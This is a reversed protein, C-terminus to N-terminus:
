ERLSRPRVAAWPLLRPPATDPAPGLKQLLAHLWDGARQCALPVDLGAALGSAIASALACGTGRVRGVPLRQRRFAFHAGPLQLLDESLPGDGHGGKGLVAGAGHQLAVSARGACIAALEPQNPTFVAALPLLRERYVRALEAPADLGGATASLVPDLVLPAVDAIPTLVDALERALDADGLLGLKIAHVPGDDLVAALADRWVSREVPVLRRFGGLGQVTLCVPVPLPVLGHLAVVTADATLGAGGSPDLGGLLLVRRGAPDKAVSM